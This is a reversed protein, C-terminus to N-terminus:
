PAVFTWTGERGIIVWTDTSVGKLFLTEGYADAWAYFGTTATDGAVGLIRDGTAPSVAVRNLSTGLAFAFTLDAPDAPLTYTIPGGITSVDTTTYEYFLQGTQDQTITIAMDSTNINSDIAISRVEIGGPFYTSSFVGSWSAAIIFALPLLISLYKLNKRM